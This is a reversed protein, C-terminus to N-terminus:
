RVPAAMPAPAKSAPLYQVGEIPRGGPGSLINFKAGAPIKGANGAAEAEAENKFTLVQAGPAAPPTTLMFQSPTPGASPTSQKMSDFFAYAQQTIKEAEKANGMTATLAKAYIDKGFEERSQTKSQNAWMLASAMDTVGPVKAEMAFRALQVVAPADKGIANPVASLIGTRVAQLDAPTASPNNQKYLGVAADAKAAAEKLTRAREGAAAAAASAARANDAKINDIDVGTKVVSNNNTALNGTVVNEDRIAAALEKNVEGIMQYARTPNIELLGVAAYIKSQDARSLKSFSADTGDAAAVSLRVLGNKDPKGMTIRTSNKNIYETTGAIQEPTAKYDKLRQGILADEQTARREQELARVQNMDGTAAAYQSMLSSLQQRYEPSSPDVKNRVTLAEQNAMNSGGRVLPSAVPAIGAAPGLAAMPDATAATADAPAATPTTTVGQRAANEAKVAAESKRLETDFDADLAANTAAKDVGSTLDSIQSAVANAREQRARSAKADSIQLDVLENRRARDEDDKKIRAAREQRDMSDSAIRSGLGFGAQFAGAM